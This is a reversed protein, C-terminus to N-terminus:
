AEELEEPSAWQVQVLLQDVRSQHAKRYTETNISFTVMMVTLAWDINLGLLQKTLQNTMEEDTSAMSQLQYELNELCTTTFQQLDMSYGFEDRLIQQTDTWHESFAQVMTDHDVLQPYEEEGYSEMWTREALYADAVAALYTGLVLHNHRFLTWTLELAQIRQQFISQYIHRLDLMERSADGQSLGAVTATPTLDAPENRNM